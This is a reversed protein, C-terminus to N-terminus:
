VLLTFHKDFGQIFVHFIYEKTMAPISPYTNVQIFLTNDLRVAGQFRGQHFGNDGFDM